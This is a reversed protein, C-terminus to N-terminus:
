RKCSIGEKRSWGGFGSGSQKRSAQKGSRRCTTGARPVQRPWLTLQWRGTPSHGHVRTCTLTLTRSCTHTNALTQSGLIPAPPCGLRIVSGPPLVLSLEPGRPCPCTHPTPRRCPPTPLRARRHKPPRPAPRLGPAPRPCPLHPRSTTAKARYGTSPVDRSLRGWSM